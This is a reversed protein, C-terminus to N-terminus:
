SNRRIKQPPSPSQNVCPCSDTKTTIPTSFHKRYDKSMDPNNNLINNHSEQYLNKLCELLEKNFLLDFCERSSFETAPFRPTKKLFITSKTFPQQQKLGTIIEPKPELNLFEQAEKEWNNKMEKTTPIPLKNQQSSSSHSPSFNSIEDLLNAQENEPVEKRKSNKRPRHSYGLSSTSDSSAPSTPAESEAPQSFIVRIKKIKSIPFNLNKNNTAM